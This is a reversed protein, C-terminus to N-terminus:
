GWNWCCGPISRSRCGRGWLDETGAYYNRAEGAADLGENPHGLQLCFWGICRNAHAVRERDNARRAEIMLRQAEVLGETSKGSRGLDWCANLRQELTQILDQPV